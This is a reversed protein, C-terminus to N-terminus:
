PVIRQVAQELSGVVDFVSTAKWNSIERETTTGHGTRVLISPCGLATALHLDVKGDGIVWSRRLDLQHEIAAKEALLTGPKRCRCAGTYYPNTGETPHHPCYYIANIPEKGSLKSLQLIRNNVRQVAREDFFGRAVGSQNSLIIVKYGKARARALSELAGPLFEIEASDALYHKNAILTGDRDVFLAPSRLRSDNGAALINQAVQIPSIRTLCYKQERWCPKEGHISCPRCFENTQIIQDFIGRPSFGFAPHTPGFLARVPTGVASSLHMIGSDNCLAVDSNSLERVINALPAATLISDQLGSFQAQRLSAADENTLAWTIKAGADRLLDATTVFSDLSWQKTPHSAGPAIFVCPGKPKESELSGKAVPLLIPRICVVEHGLQALCDNYLDITHPYSEPINQTRATFRRQLSRKPYVIKSNAATIKRLLWSRINSHLDILTDVKRSELEANIRVLGRYTGANLTLVEDIGPLLQAASRFKEKTIYTISSTPFHIRLNALFASSLIIDGLSSFRVVAIRQSM